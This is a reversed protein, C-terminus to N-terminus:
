KAQTKVKSFTTQVQPQIRQTIAILTLPAGTSISVAIRIPRTCVRPIIQSIIQNAINTDYNEVCFRLLRLNIGFPNDIPM